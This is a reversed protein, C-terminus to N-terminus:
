LLFPHLTRGQCYGHNSKGEARACVGLFGERQFLNQASWERRIQGCCFVTIAHGPNEVLLALSVNPNRFRRPEGRSLESFVVLVIALFEGRLRPVLRKSRERPRRHAWASRRRGNM